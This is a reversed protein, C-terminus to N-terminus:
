KARPAHMNTISFRLFSTEYMLAAVAETTCAVGEPLVGDPSLGGPLMEDKLVGDLLVGELLVEDVLLRVDRRRRVLLARRTNVVMEIHIRSRRMPRVSANVKILNSTSIILTSMSKTAPNHSSPIHILNRLACFTTTSILQFIFRIIFLSNLTPM